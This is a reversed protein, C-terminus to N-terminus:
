NVYIYDKIAKQTLFLYYNPNRLEDNAFQLWYIKNDMIITNKKDNNQKM